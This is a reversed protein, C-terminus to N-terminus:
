GITQLLGRLSLLLIVAGVLMMMPRDPVHRTALAALPAACAGGIILGTIMPWLELGITGLFTISIVTTVFFEATNVSGIAFRPQAGHGIMTSAVMPGWGGGGVADLFGGAFGLPRVWRPGDTHGAATRRIAKFLIWGGMVFLYAYVAPRIYESPTAVLVYAGLAGGIMGPVALKWVLPWRINGLRWHWFGSMGTTFVEAAHVSASAVPAPIGLGLMVSTGTLGYAMGIAGDVMQAAFGIAAFLLVDEWM